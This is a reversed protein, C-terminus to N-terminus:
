PVFVGQVAFLLNDPTDADGDPGGDFVRVREVEWITRRGDKSIGPYFFDMETSVSCTSGINTATTNEFCLVPVSLPLDTVTAPEFGGGPASANYKDTIRLDLRLQVEGVYDAGGASNAAGCTAVGPKCRVDSLFIELPVSSDEPPGPVGVRVNLRVWGQFNASAGNADPTGVTLNPSAQSPSACSPFALPPGHTRDPSTCADFAPVLAVRLPTAGKPRPYGTVIPEWDPATDQAPNGGIQTDGSGDANMVHIERNPGPFNRQYVIKSGDPSWAPSSVETASGSTLTVDGTGDANMVHIGYMCPTEVVCETSVYAIRQGDPSWNPQSESGLSDTIEVPSSGDAGMIHIDMSSAGRVSAFAIRGGDPSWAPDVDLGSNDATLVDEGTGDANMVVIDFQTAGVDRNAHAAIRTGDPSWTPQDHAWVDITSVRTQGTGDDNMRYIQQRPSGTLDRSFAIATGDASWAPSRDSEPSNTLNTQAGGGSNMSYIEENGDRDTGFAIKGNAGPFAAHAAPVVALSVTAIAILLKASRASRM